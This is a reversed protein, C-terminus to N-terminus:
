LRSLHTAKDHNSGRRSPEDVTKHDSDPRAGDLPTAINSRAGSYAVSASPCRRSCSGFSLTSLGTLGQGITCGMALVGGVGML